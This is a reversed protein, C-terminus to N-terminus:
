SEGLAIAACAQWRAARLNDLFQRRLDSADDPSVIAENAAMRALRVCREAAARDASAPAQEVIVAWLNRCADGIEIHAASADYHGAHDGLWDGGGVMAEVRKRCSAEAWRIAAYKPATVENPPIYVFPDPTTM